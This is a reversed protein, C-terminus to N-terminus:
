VVAAEVLKGIGALGAIMESSLGFREQLYEPTNYCLWVVSAEDRWALAKLPLDIAIEPAAMMIPTGAEPNGFILVQTPRLSLGAARAEASHDIRAFVKIGRAQLIAELRDLTEAVSYGSRVSRIGIGHEM